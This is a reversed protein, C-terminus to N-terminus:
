HNNSLFRRNESRVKVGAEVQERLRRLLMKRIMRTCCRTMKIRAKKDTRSDVWSLLKLRECTRCWITRQRKWECSWWWRRFWKSCRMSILTNPKQRYVRQWKFGWSTWILVSLQNSKKTWKFTFRLCNPNSTQRQAKSNPTLLNSPQKSKTMATKKSM